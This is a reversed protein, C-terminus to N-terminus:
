LPLDEASCLSGGAAANLRLPPLEGTGWTFFGIAQVELGALEIKTSESYSARRRFWVFPSRVNPGRAARGFKVYPSRIPSAAAPWSM